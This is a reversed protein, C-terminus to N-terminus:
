KYKFKIKDSLIIIAQKLYKLDELNDYRLIKEESNQSKLIAHESDLVINLIM